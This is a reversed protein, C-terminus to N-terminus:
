KAQNIAQIMKHYIQNNEYIGQFYEAGKGAAFVPILEGSHQDTNFYVTVKEPVERKSGTSEDMDYHKGISVGGTEHDATVVLLTNPHTDVYDLALGLTKDFDLVESVMMDANKAHGGWDIYSGEVMMFFPAETEDFYSLAKATAELLYDGRGEIKSPIGDDALVYANKKSMEVESLELTDLHYGQVVLEEFLNRGDQRQSFFKRGGGAFFDVKSDILQAAIDEHMDRDPVHAYFSAPTAHTISTLSVLGTQYGEKQLRELITEKPLSDGSVGIARKYTKEGISFATAGAASDTITYVKDSTRHLGIHKFRSFNPLSDGFYYASSVQPVGMGDGIMFIISLPEEQLPKGSSEDKNSVTDCGYFFVTFVAILFTRLEIKM